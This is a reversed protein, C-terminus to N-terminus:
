RYGLRSSVVQAASIVASAIEELRPPKFRDSPGGVSISAVVEGEKNFVPAGVACIGLVIDEDSFSFGQRRIEELRERLKGVDTTTKETYPTLGQSIVESIVDDNSYALIATTGGGVYLPLTAGIGFLVKVPSSGEVRDICVGRIDDPVILYSTEGLNSALEILSPKSEQRIDMSDVVISGIEFLRITLRYRRDDTRGIWNAHEMTALIRRATSKNLQAGEALEALTLETKEHSFCELLTCAKLISNVLNKNQKPAKPTPM